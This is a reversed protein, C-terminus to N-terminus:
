SRLPAPRGGALAYIWRDGAAFTCALTRRGCLGRGPSLTPAIEPTIPRPWYSEAKVSMVSPLSHLLRRRAADQSLASAPARQRPHDWRICILQYEASIPTMALALGKESTATCAYIRQEPGQGGTEPACDLPLRTIM